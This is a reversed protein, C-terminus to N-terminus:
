VNAEWAADLWRAVEDDIEDVGTLGIRLNITENGLRKAQEVRGTPEQGDIRLGMDVRTKTTAQIVAYQRKPTYLPVYTKRGVVEVEPHQEKAIALLRDLIPRLHERDEYQGDILEADSAELFDPYGFREMVVLSQTYGEIGRESLWQRLAAEDDPGEDRVRANWTELDDGTQEELRHAYKDWMGKWSRSEAM